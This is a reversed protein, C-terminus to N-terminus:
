KIPTLEVTATQGVTVTVVTASERLRTLAEKDPTAYPTGPPLAVLAYRGAPLLTMSFAGPARTAGAAAVTPTATTGPPGGSSAGTAVSRAQRVFPSGASWRAPDDPFVLVPAGTVAQGGADNVVGDIRGTERTMVIVLDDIRETGLLALPQGSIDRGGRSVSQLAAQGSQAAVNVIGRVGTLEFTGDPRVTAPASSSFAMSYGATAAPPLSVRTPTPRAGSGPTGAAAAPPATGEVVVRGSVTAGVNTQVSVTVDDGNVTVPVYAGEASGGGRPGSGLRVSLYYDGPPVAPIVFSGDPRVSAGRGGFAPNTTKPNLTIAGFTGAAGLPNGGSDTARGSISGLRGEVLAFEVGGTEQGAKVSVTRAGEYAPVGPYFTPLRGVRPGEDGTSMPMDNAAAGVVYEGDPLGWVRFQGLDNTQQSSGFTSTLSSGLLRDQRMTLITAGTVPEGFEDFVRGTIVGGRELKVVAKAADGDGVQVLMPQQSRVFAAPPMVNVSYVAAPLGTLTAVGAQDTRGERQVRALAAGDRTPPAGGSPAAAAAPRPSAGPTRGASPPMVTGSVILRAGRIPAGSDAAVVQVALTATGTPPPPPPSTPPAQQGSAMLTPAHGAPVLGAAAAACLVGAVLVRRTIGLARRHDHM